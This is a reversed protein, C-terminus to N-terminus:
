LTVPWYVDFLYHGNQGTSLAITCFSLRAGWLTTWNPLSHPSIPLIPLFPSFREYLAMTYPRIENLWFSFTWYYFCPCHLDQSTYLPTTQRSPLTCLILWQINTPNTLSKILWFYSVSMPQEKFICTWWTQFKHNFITILFHRIFELNVIYVLYLSADYIKFMVLINM